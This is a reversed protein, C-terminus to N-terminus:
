ASAPSLPSLHAHTALWDSTPVDVLLHRVPCGSATAFAREFWEGVAPCTEHKLSVANGALLAPVLGNQATFIPYNWPAIIEVVGKPARRVEYAFDGEVKTEPALAAEAQACLQRM